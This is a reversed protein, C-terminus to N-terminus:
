APKRMSALLFVGRSRDPASAEAIRLRNALRTASLRGFNFGHRIGRTFLERALDSCFLPTVTVDVFGLGRLLAALEAGRFYRSVGHERRHRAILEPDTISELADVSFRLLGGPRLVRLCERLVSEHDPIHEIVCISFIRDFSSEPFRAAEIAGCFFDADVRGRLLGAQWRADAIAAPEIDLGTVHGARMGILFTQLGSGCGVDLVREEGTWDLGHLLAQFELIKFPSYTFHVHPYLRVSTLGRLLARKLPGM